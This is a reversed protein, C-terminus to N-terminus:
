AARRDFECMVMTVDDILQAGERFKQIQDIIVNLKGDLESTSNASDVLSKLFAREGWKKGAPDQVDLIGDTYMFVLDGPTFDLTIEDYMFDKADGLRPGNVDNLPVIDKRTIKEGSRRLLYPPDHSANAYTFTNQDLDIAAVFFTMLIQGKSTQHIARNLVSLAKGPTMDPMSEIVAAASRAASTILAAPAGHGTADGIWLYIKNDIRSYNWWDGGCESAPEFHGAIRVPGFQSQSPPFLTEQVTKVTSLENQMRANEATESLLRSVEAAMWNFSDALGGVEDGSKSEVKVNFDGQAIKRTAEFLERITSTLRNSAFVSILFTTALLMVFFLLSQVVLVQVAKLARARNTRSIVMFDGFGVKSFSILYQAGDSLKVESTGESATNALLPRLLDLDTGVVELTGIAVRGTSSVVFTSGSGVFANLLDNAQYLVFVVSPRPDDKEGLRFATALTAPMGEYEVFSVGSDLAHERLKDLVAANGPFAQAPPAPKLLHGLRKFQGSSDKRELIVAHIRNNRDFLGQGFESFQGSEPSYAEVIGRTNEYL